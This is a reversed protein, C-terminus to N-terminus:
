ERFVSTGTDDRRTLHILLFRLFIGIAYLSNLFHVVSSSSRVNKSPLVIRASLPENVNGSRARDSEFRRMSWRYSRSLNVRVVPNDTNYIRDRHNLQTAIIFPNLEEERHFPLEAVEGYGTVFSQWRPASDGVAAHLESWLVAFDYLYHGRGLQEFDILYIEGEYVALQWLDPRYPDDRLQRAPVWAIWRLWCM